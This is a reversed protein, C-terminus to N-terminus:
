RKASQNHVSLGTPILRASSLTERLVRLDCLLVLLLGFGM